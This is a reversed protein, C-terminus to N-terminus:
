ASSQVHITRDFRFNENSLEKETKKLVTKDIAENRRVLVVIFPQAEAAIARQYVQATLEELIGGLGYLKGTVAADPDNGQALRVTTFKWEQL